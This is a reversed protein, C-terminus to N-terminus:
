RRWPSQRLITLQRVFDNSTLMGVYQHLKSDWVPAASIATEFFFIRPAVLCQCQTLNADARDFPAVAAASSIIVGATCACCLPVCLKRRSRSVGRQHPAGHRARGSQQEGCDDCGREPLSSLFPNDASLLKLNPSLPVSSITLGGLSAPTPVQQGKARLAKPRAVCRSYPIVEIVQMAELVRRATPTLEARVDRVSVLEAEEPPSRKSDAAGQEHEEMFVDM